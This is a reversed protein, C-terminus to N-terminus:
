PCSSTAPMGVVAPATASSREIAGSVGRDGRAQERSAGHDEALRVQALERVEDRVRVRAAVGAEAALDSARRSASRLGLPEDDPDAVAAAAASAVTVIPVSVDPEIMLGDACWPM